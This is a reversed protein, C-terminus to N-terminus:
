FLKQYIDFVFLLFATYFFVQCIVYQCEVMEWRKFRYQQNIVDAVLIYKSILKNIYFITPPLYNKNKQSQFFIKKYNQWGIKSGEVQDPFISLSYLFSYVGCGQKRLEASFACEKIPCFCCCQSNLFIHFNKPSCYGFIISSCPNILNQYCNNGNCQGGQQKSARCFCYLQGHLKEKCKKICPNCYNVEVNVALWSAVVVYKSYEPSYHNYKPQQRKYVDSAASSICHTSRPPRRIM